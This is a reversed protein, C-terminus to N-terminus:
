VGVPIPGPMTGTAHLNYLESAESLGHTMFGAISLSGFIIILVFSIILMNTKLKVSDLMNYYDVMGVLLM